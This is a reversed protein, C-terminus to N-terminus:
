KTSSLRNGGTHQTPDNAIEVITANESLQCPRVKLIQWSDHELDPVVNAGLPGLTVVTDANTICGSIRSWLNFKQAM